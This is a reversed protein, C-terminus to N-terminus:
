VCKSVGNLDIMILAKGLMGRAANWGAARYRAAQTPPLAVYLYLPSLPTHYNAFGPVAVFLFLQNLNMGGPLHAATLGWTREMDLPTVIQRAIGVESTPPM